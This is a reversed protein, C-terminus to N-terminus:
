SSTMVLLLLGFLSTKSAMKQVFQRWNFRRKRPAGPWHVKSDEGPEGGFCGRYRIVAWVLPRFSRWVSEAEDVLLGGTVEPVEGFFEPMVDSMEGDHLVKFKSFGGMLPSRIAFVVKKIRSERIPFSCMACPEVNSYITCDELNSSGLAKQAQSVALLEAHRTLDADRSVRNTAEAVIVGDKCIVAAFPMEGLTAADRSLEICRQMMKVDIDDVTPPQAVNIDM